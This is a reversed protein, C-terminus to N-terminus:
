PAGEYNLTVTAGPVTKGSEDLVRIGLDAPLQQPQILFFILAIVGVLLLLVLLLFVPFSPINRNEFFDVFRYSPVNKDELWDMFQYYKEEARFYYDKLSDVIGM